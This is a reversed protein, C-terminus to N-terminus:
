RARDVGETDKDLGEGALAELEELAMRLLGRQWDKHTAAFAAHVGPWPGRVAEGPRLAKLRLATLRGTQKDRLMRLKGMNAVPGEEASEMGATTNAFLLNSLFINVATDCPGSYAIM